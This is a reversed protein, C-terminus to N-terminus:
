SPINFVNSKEGESNLRLALLYGLIVSDMVDSNELLEDTYKGLDVNQMFWYHLIEKKVGSAKTKPLGFSDRVQTPSVFVIPFGMSHVSRSFYGLFIALQVVQIKSGRWYVSQPDWDCAIPLVERTSLSHAIKQAFAFVEHPSSKEGFGSNPSSRRSKEWLFAKEMRILKPTKLDFTSEVLAGHRFSPDFGYTTLTQSRTAM